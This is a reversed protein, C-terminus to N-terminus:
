RGRRKNIFWNIVFPVVVNLINGFSGSFVTKFSGLLQEIFSEAAKKQGISVWVVKSLKNRKL